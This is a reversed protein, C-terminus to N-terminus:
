QSDYSIPFITHSFKLGSTLNPVVVKRSLRNSSDLADKNDLFSSFFIYSLHKPSQVLTPLLYAACKIFNDLCWSLFNVHQTRLMFSSLFCRKIKKKEPSSVTQPNKIAICLFVLFVIVTFM